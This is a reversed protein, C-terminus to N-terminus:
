KKPRRVVITARMGRAAHDLRMCVLRYTGPRTLRVKVTAQRESRIEHSAALVTGRKTEVTLDHADEGFNKVNFRVTGPPVTRRYVSIRYERESVGVATNASAHPRAAAAFGGGALATVSIGAAVIAGCVRM